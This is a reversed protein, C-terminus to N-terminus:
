ALRETKNSKPITWASNVAKVVEQFDTTVFAGFKSYANVEFSINKVNSVVIASDGEIAPFVILGGNPKQFIYCGNSKVNHSQKKNGRVIKLVWSPIIKGAPIFTSKLKIECINM